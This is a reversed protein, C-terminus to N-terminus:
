GGFLATKVVRGPAFYEWDESLQLIKKRGCKLFLGVLLTNQRM